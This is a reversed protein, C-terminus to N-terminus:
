SHGKKIAAIMGARFGIEFVQAHTVREKMLAPLGLNVVLGLAVMENVDNPHINPVVPMDM